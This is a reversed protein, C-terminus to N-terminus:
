AMNDALLSEWDGAYLNEFLASYNREYEFALTKNQDDEPVRPFSSSGRAGHADLGTPTSARPLHHPFRCGDGVIRGPEPLELPRDLLLTPWSLAASAAPQRLVWGGTLISHRNLNEVM